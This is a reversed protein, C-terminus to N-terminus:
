LVDRVHDMLGAHVQDITRNADVVSYGMAECLAHYRTRRERLYDLSPIDDRRELAVEESLDLYIVLRPTPFLRTWPRQMMRVLEEVSQGFNLSQDIVLDCLYRDALVVRRALLGRGVRWWVQILYDFVALAFYARRLVGSRFVSRKTDQWAHFREGEETGVNYDKVATKRFLTGKALAM